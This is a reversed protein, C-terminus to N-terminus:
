QPAEEHQAPHQIKALACVADAAEAVACIYDTRDGHYYATLIKGLQHQIHEWAAPLNQPSNTTTM